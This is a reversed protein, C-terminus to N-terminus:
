LVGGMLLRFDAVKRQIAARREPVLNLNRDQFLTRIDRLIRAEEALKECDADVRATHEAATMIAGGAPCVVRKLGLIWGVVALGPGRRLRHM